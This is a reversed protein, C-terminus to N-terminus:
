YGVLSLIKEDANLERETSVYRLPKLVDEEEFSLLETEDFVIENQYPWHNTGQRRAFIEKKQAIQEESADKKPQMCVYIAYRLQDSTPLSSCHVTRSDWLVLSGKPATVKIPHIGKEAFWEDGKNEHNFAYWDYDFSLNKEAFFQSHLRNSSPYVMLGGDLETTNQLNLFSQVCRFGEKKPSQDFHFWSQNTASHSICPPLMMCVGDFSVLLSDTKWITEFVRRINANCRVDWAVQSHSVGYNSIIGYPNAPWNYSSLGESIAKERAVWTNPDNRQIGSTKGTNKDQLGEVWTWLKSVYEDAQAESVINEVVVYGYMALREM